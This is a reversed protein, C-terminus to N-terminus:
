GIEASRLRRRELLARLRSREGPGLFGTMALLLPIAALAATRELLGLAGSAPLLLEGAITVGGIVAVLHALRTWEFPVAFLGRILAYMVALM